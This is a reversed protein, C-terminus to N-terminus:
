GLIRVFNDRYEDDLSEITSPLYNISCNLAQSICANRWASWSDSGRDPYVERSIMHKKRPDFKSFKHELNDFITEKILNLYYPETPLDPLSYAIERALDEM